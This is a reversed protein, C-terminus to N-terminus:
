LDAILAYREDDIPHGWLDPEDLPETRVHRVLPRVADLLHEATVGGNWPLSPADPTYPTGTTSTAWRGEILVLRGGPRILRTWRRLAAHPDPLTWLLHRTLVVDFSDGAQAPPNGADGVLLPVHQGHQHMKDQAVEIMRASLDVGVPHHGHEALLLSVSGTGCGLDLIRAPAAPMWSRLRNAWAARVRLDHLGHDAETDFSGAAADWFASISGSDPMSADHWRASVSPRNMGRSAGRRRDGPAGPSQRRLPLPSPDLHLPGSGRTFANWPPPKQRRFPTALSVKIVPGTEKAAQRNIFWDFLGIVDLVEILAGATRFL